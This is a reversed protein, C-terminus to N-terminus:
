SKVKLSTFLNIVVDVTIREKECEETLTSDIFKTSDFKISIRLAHHNSFASHNKFNRFIIIFCQSQNKLNKFVTRSHLSIRCITLITKFHKKM